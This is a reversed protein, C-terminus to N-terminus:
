QHPSSEPHPVPENDKEDTHEVDQIKPVISSHLEQVIISDILKENILNIIKLGPDNDCIQTFAFFGPLDLCPGIGSVNSKKYIIAHPPSSNYEITIMPEAEEFKEDKVIECCIRIRKSKLLFDNKFYFIAEKDNEEFIPIALLASLNPRDPSNVNIIQFPHSVKYTKVIGEMTEFSITDKQM